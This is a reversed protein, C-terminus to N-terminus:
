ALNSEGTIGFDRKFRRLWEANDAATPNWPDDSIYTLVQYDPIPYLPKSMM